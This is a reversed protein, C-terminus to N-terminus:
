HHGKGEIRTLTNTGSVLACKIEAVDGQKFKANVAASQVAPVACTLGAVTISDTTLTSITGRAESKEPTTHSPKCSGAGLEVAAGGATGGGLKGNTFGTAAAFTASLNAVLRANPQHAKGVALGAITTGDYVASYSAQTKRGSAVDISFNGNVVGVNDTTNVVSRARLTIAGTLDADGTAAGTYKGDTVVITKGDTTTCTRTSTSGAAANFTGAVRTASKAGEIGDAVAYSTVVLAVLAVATYTLKRM